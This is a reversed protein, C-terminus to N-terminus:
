ALVQFSKFASNFGAGLLTCEKCQIYNNISKATPGDEECLFRLVCSV